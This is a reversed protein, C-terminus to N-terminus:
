IQVDINRYGHRYTPTPGFANSQVHVCVKYVCVKYVRARPCVCLSYVCVYVCVTYVCADVLTDVFVLAAPHRPHTTHAPLITALVHERFQQARRKRHKACVSM